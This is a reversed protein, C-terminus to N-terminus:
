DINSERKKERKKINELLEKIENELRKNELIAQDDLQKKAQLQNQLQTM